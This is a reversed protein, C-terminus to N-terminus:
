VCGLICMLWIPLIYIWKRTKKMDGQISKYEGQLRKRKLQKMSNEKRITVAM